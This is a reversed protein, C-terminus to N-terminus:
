ILLSCDSFFFFFFFFFFLIWETNLDITAFLIQSVPSFIWLTTDDANYMVFFDSWMNVSVHCALSVHM